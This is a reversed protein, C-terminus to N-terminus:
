NLGRGGVVVGKLVFDCLELSLSSLEELLLLLLDDLARPTKLFFEFLESGVVDREIVWLRLFFPMRFFVRQGLILVGFDRHFVETSVLVKSTFSVLLKM